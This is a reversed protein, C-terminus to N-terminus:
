GVGKASGAATDPGVTCRDQRTAWLRAVSPEGGATVLQQDPFSFRTPKGNVEGDLHVTLPAGNRYRGVVALQEGAFLDPLPFPYLEDTLVHGDFELHVKTLVPTSVADYFQSVAEDIREDPRVYSSRGGLERALVDLLDTNVDYGVGFTFLRVARNPPTNDSANIIIHDAEVEGQTPLGDTLFLIYATRGEQMGSIDDVQALGELLARNIDTSGSARLSDIWDHARQASEGDIEQLSSDWLRVGTSFSLINFRDGSNLRDVVFHAADRAQQIKDGEMSGSVDLVLVIDRRVVDELEAEVEPAALLTFFGDENAPKYSLLNLGIASDSVGFFLDFDSIQTSATAEFGIDARDEGSRDVSIRHSPSFITRLGPQNRLEVHVSLDKVPVNSFRQTRLPYQFHYLGDQIPLVETYALEIKRSEGPPIPFVSTQFLGRGLYELLAPDRQSRVIEEYIRRAEDKAMLKGEMVSGDVTMQFDSIAADPPLPFVYVGEVTRSTENRFVQTVHVTAIPGDIEVGVRHEEITIPGGVLPRPQRPTPEIIIGQAYSSEPMAYIAILVLGLVVLLQRLFQIKKM